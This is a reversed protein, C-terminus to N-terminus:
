KEIKELEKKKDLSTNLDKMFQVSDFDSPPSGKPNNVTVSDADGNDNSKKHLFCYVLQFFVFFFCLIFRVSSSLSIVNLYHLSLLLVFVLNYIHVIFM